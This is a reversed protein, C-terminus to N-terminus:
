RAGVRCLPTKTKPSAVSANARQFCKMKRSNERKLVRGRVWPSYKKWFMNVLNAKHRWELKTLRRGTTGEETEEALGVMRDLFAKSACRRLRASQHHSDSQDGRDARAETTNIVKKRAEDSKKRKTKRHKKSAYRCKKSKTSAYVVPGGESMKREVEVPLKHGLRM